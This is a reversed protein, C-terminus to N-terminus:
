TNNRIGKEYLIGCSTFAGYKTTLLPIKNTEAFSIAAEVPTKGRLYVVAVIDAVDATRISQASTLSTLLISNEKAYALVDSMLDACFCHQFEIDLLNEGVIVTCDLLERILKLNMSM